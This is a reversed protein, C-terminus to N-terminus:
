CEGAHGSRAIAAQTYFEDKFGIHENRYARGCLTPFALGIAQDKGLLWWLRGGMGRERQAWACSTGGNYYKRQAGYNGRRGYTPQFDMTSAQETCRSRTRKALYRLGERCIICSVKSESQLRFSFTHVSSVHHGAAPTDMAAFRGQCRRTICSGM